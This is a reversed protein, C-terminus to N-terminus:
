SLNHRVDRERVGHQLLFVLVGRLYKKTMRAALDDSKM